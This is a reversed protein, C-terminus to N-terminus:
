YKDWRKDKLDRAIISTHVLRDFLKQSKSETIKSPSSSHLQLTFKGQWSSQVLTIKIKTKCRSTKNQYQM